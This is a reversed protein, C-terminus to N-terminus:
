TKVGVLALNDRDVVEDRRKCGLIAAVDNTNCGKIKDLEFSSYSTIGRAIELGNKDKISVLDDVNFHGEVAIIGKPLLSKNRSIIAAVAGEDVLIAGKSKKTIYALWHKKAKLGKIARIYTGTENNLAHLLPNKVRGDAILCPIGSTTCIEAAELKTTMGGVSFHKKTGSCYKKVDKLDTVEKIINKDYDYIGAVDSLIMLLDAGLLAALMASLRDNDGLKIEEVALADNENIIPVAGLKLLENITDKANLYRKRSSFDDWNLLVQAVEIKYRLFNKQYLKMLEIQGISALAQLSSISQPRIKLGLRVMGSAIAGSSVILVRKGSRKIQAVDQAIEKFKAINLASNGRLVSSGIKIVITKYAM